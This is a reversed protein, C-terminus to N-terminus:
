PAHQSILTVGPALKVATDHQSHEKVSCLDLSTALELCRQTVKLEQGCYGVILRNQVTLQMYYFVSYLTIWILLM